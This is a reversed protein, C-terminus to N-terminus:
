KIRAEIKGSNLLRKRMLSIYGANYLSYSAIEKISKGENWLIIFQEDTLKEKKTKIVQNILLDNVIALADTLQSQVKLLEKNYKSSYENVRKNIEVEVLSNIQEDTLIIKM